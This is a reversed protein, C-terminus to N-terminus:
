WSRFNGTLSIHNGDFRVVVDGPRALTFTVNGHDNIDVTVGAPVDEIAYFGWNQEWSGNTIKFQCEQNAPLNSFTHTFIDGEQTMQIADALWTKESGVLVENGTIYFPGIAPEPTSNGEWEMYIADGDFRVHVNATAALTFVVNNSSSGTVGNPISALDSYGWSQDWSGNTIKFKAEQGAPVNWFTHTYYKGEQPMQIADVQWSNTPFLVENGTIYFPGKPIPDTSSEKVKFTISDVESTTYTTNSGDMWISMDYQAAAHLALTFLISIIVFKKM